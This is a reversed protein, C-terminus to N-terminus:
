NDIILDARNINKKLEESRYSHIIFASKGDFRFSVLKTFPTKNEFETIILSAYAKKLTEFTTMFGIGSGGTDGHTTVRELGLKSLTDITFEVGNDYIDIAYDDNQKSLNVLIKGGAEGRSDVAIIADKIHDSLLTQLDTQSIFKGIIEDVTASVTLNFDISHAAAKIYLDNISADILHNGTSSLVKSEIQDKAILEGREKALTQIERLLEDKKSEDDSYFYADVSADLASMLHNDRHVIKALYENSQNLKEIEMDREELVEKYHEESKLQLRERYHATISRRIWLYLGFGALIIGVGFALFFNINGMNDRMNMCKLIMVIASLALGLGLNKEQQFFQFGKIFRKTKFFFVCLVFAMIESPLYAFVGEPVLKFLWLLTGLMIDSAAELVTVFSLAFLGIVYKKFYHGNEKSLYSLIIPIFFSRLIYSLPYNYLRVFVFLVTVLVGSFLIFVLQKIKLRINQSKCFVYVSVLYVSFCNMFHNLILDFGNTPYEPIVRIM